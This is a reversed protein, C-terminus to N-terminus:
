VEEKVFDIKVIMDGGPNLLSSSVDTIYDGVGTYFVMAVRGGSYNISYPNIITSDNINFNRDENFVYIYGEDYIRKSIETDHLLTAELSSEENAKVFYNRDQFKVLNDVSPDEQGSMDNVSTYGFLNNKQIGVPRKEFM